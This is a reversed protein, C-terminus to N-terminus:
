NAQFQKLQDCKKINKQSKYQSSLNKLAFKIMSLTEEEPKYHSEDLSVITKFIENIILQNHNIYKCVL